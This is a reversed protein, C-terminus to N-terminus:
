KVRLMWILLCKRSFQYRTQRRMFAKRPLVVGNETVYASLIQLASHPCGARATSCIVKGDVAIVEGASGFRMRLVDLATDGIEKGSISNLVRAFTAKSPIVEIGLEKRWFSDDAPYPKPTYATKKEQPFMGLKCM